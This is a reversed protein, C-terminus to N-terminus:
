FHEFSLYPYGLVMMIEDGEHFEQMTDNVIDVEGESDSPYGRVLLNLGLHLEPISSYTTILNSEYEPLDFFLQAYPKGVRCAKIAPQLYDDFTIEVARERKGEREM